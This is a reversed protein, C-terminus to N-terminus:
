TTLDIFVDLREDILMADYLDLSVKRPQRDLYVPRDEPWAHAHVFIVLPHIKGDSDRHPRLLVPSAFRGKDRENGYEWNKTGRQTNQIIPLGLAARYTPGDRNSGYGADHDAKAFEFGINKPPQGPGARAHDVTRGHARWGKLWNALEIHAAAVTPQSSLTQIAIADGSTKFCLLAAKLDFASTHALAGYGRRSRFGLSGLHGFVTVLAQIGPWMARDGRWQVDLKFSGSEIVGHSKGRLPFLLYGKPEHLSAGMQDANKAASSCLLSVRIVLLSAHGEDGATAGFVAAEQERVSGPHSTFGGLTRFWWRLHGRVSPARIEAKTQDSGSCFCPTLLNLTYRAVNM